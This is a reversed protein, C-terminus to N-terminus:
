SPNFFYKGNAHLSVWICRQNIRCSFSSLIISMSTKVVLYITNTTSSSYDRSDPPHSRFYDTISKTIGEKEEKEEKKNIKNTSQIM